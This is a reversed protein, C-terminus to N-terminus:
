GEDGGTPAGAPLQPQDRRAPAALGWLAFRGVPDNVITPAGPLPAATDTPEAAEVELRALARRELPALATEAVQFPGGDHPFVTLVGAGHGLARALVEPSVRPVVEMGAPILVGPSAECLLQGLPVVDVDAASVVLVGRTTVAVRQGKLSAPPLAYVLRKLWGAQALPVLTAAVHRQAGLAPALRVAVALV